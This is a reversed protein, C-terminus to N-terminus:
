SENANMTALRIVKAPYPAAQYPGPMLPCPRYDRANTRCDLPEGLWEACARIAEACDVQRTQIYLELLNSGKDGTAFDSWVGVKSGAVRIGLSKGPEGALSGVLWENGNKRGAPFLWDAFDEARGNLREKIEHTDM